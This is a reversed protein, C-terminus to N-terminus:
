SWSGCTAARGRRAPRRADPAQDGARAKTAPASATQLAAAQAHKRIVHSLPKAVLVAAAVLLLALEIAAISSAVVTARRWPRVLDHPSVLPADM